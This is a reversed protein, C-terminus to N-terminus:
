RSRQRGSRVPAVRPGGTDVGRVTLFHELFENIGEDLCDRVTVFDALEKMDRVANQPVAVYGAARCFELDNYHDGIGIVQEMSSHDRAILRELARHKNARADRVELHWSGPRSYSEYLKVKLEGAKMKAKVYDFVQNVAYFGGTVVVELIEGAAASFDATVSTEINWHQYHSPLVVDPESLLLGEPTVACCAVKGNGAAEDIIDLAFEQDFPMTFLIDGHLHRVLAGDLSIVPERMRLEEAYMETAQHHRRTILVFRVGHEVVKEILDATRTGIMEDRNLLTGDVDCAILVARRLRNEPSGLGGFLRRTLTRLM